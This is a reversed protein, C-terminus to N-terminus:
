VCFSDCQQLDTRGDKQGHTRTFTYTHTRTVNIAKISRRNKRRGRGSIQKNAGSLRSGEKVGAGGHGVGREREAYFVDGHFKWKAKPIIFVSVHITLVEIVCTYPRQALHPRPKAREEGGGKKKLAGWQSEMICSVIKGAGRLWM